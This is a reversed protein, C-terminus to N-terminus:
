GHYVVMEKLKEYDGTLEIKHLLRYNYRCDFNACTGDKSKDCEIYQIMDLHKKLTMNRENLWDFMTYTTKIPIPKFANKLINGNM